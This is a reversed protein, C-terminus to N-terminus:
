CIVPGLNSRPGESYSAPALFMIGWHMLIMDMEIATQLLKSSLVLFKLRKGELMKNVSKYLTNM